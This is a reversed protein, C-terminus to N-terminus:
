KAKGGKALRVKILAYIALGAICLVSIEGMTDFGRFDVLTVNVVNNGGGGTHSNAVYWQGIEAPFLRYGNGLLTVLTAMVGVGISVVVNIDQFGPTRPYVKLQPLHAFVLLFLVSTVVEVVLQTLALDPARMLAFWLSLPMGIMSIAAMAALRTKSLVTAAAGAAVVGLMIWEHIAIPALDLNTVSIGKMWLTALFGLVAASLIYVLYDRLLGTMQMNTLRKAFKEVAQDKWWLWDYLNNANYKEPAWRRFVAVVQDLRLYGLLGGGLAIASMVLAPSFGHWIALHFEPRAKVVASVAPAIISSEVVGPVVGIIVVLAALVAPPLLMLWPAEHPRKPTENTLPGYFIKHALILCYVTTLVSSGTAIIPAIVGIPSHLSAELFMEKSIFGNLPPVGAMAAAGIAALVASVPMAKALGSLRNIDRTGTEHDIIGVVMFLLGKFTAHNLLHFIAAIAADQTGFGFLSMILGLQSITSMALIAKLDHKQLALYAGLVMTAMGATAVIDTWYAHTAFIPWIRAVLFLGAKVMTASHLYASVPTPASMADPLWIHFPAQASKTFAGALLLVLAIGSLPHALIAEKNAVLEAIEFTGGITGLITVGALLALGGSVTILMSKLAGYSGSERTYWFGILLFSSISTLEWFIYLGMLNGSFVVGLMAGMFLLIYMYFKGLDEKAGLYLISYLFVLSGVGTILFALLRGWGDVQITLDIGLQPVWTITSLAEQPTLAVLTLAGLAVALAALGLRRGLPKYLLPMCFAGIFPLFIAGLALGM